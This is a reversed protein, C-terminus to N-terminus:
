KYTRSLQQLQNLVTVTNSGAQLGVSPQTKNEICQAFETLMLRNEGVHHSFNGFPYFTQMAESYNQTFTDEGDSHRTYTMVPYTATSSGATGRLTCRIVSEQPSGYFGKVM